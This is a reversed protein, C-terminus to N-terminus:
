TYSNVGDSQTNGSADYSFGSVHNNGDATMAPPLYESCGTYASAGPQSQLNGWPDYSSSYDYGWCYPGTTASTGATKVRNLQDYTFNQTRSSNLNNTISYVHGANKSTSPDVFSYTIDIANGGTSSAKFENPQLRSNYSHTLNLGTFSSSQGISLAYFTGQPTYCVAGSLCGTPATQFDTAYTIGNSGDAATKPRSASDYTYNVIRGSPYTISTTNGALDYTYNVTRYGAQTFQENLLVRGM